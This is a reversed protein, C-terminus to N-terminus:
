WTFVQMDAFEITSNTTTGTLDGFFINSTATLLGVSTRVAAYEAGNRVMRNMVATGEGLFELWDSGSTTPLATGSNRLSSAGVSAPPTGSGGVYLTSGAAWSIVSTGDRLNLAFPTGAVAPARCRFRVYLKTTATITGSLATVGLSASSSAVNGDTCRVFGGVSSVSGGAGNTFVTFGQGALTGASETGVLYAQLEPTGAYVVPPLWAQINGSGAAAARPTVAKYRLLIPQGGSPTFVGFDGDQLGVASFDDVSSLTWAYGASLSAFRTWAGSQYSYAVSEEDHGGGSKILAIADTEVPYLADFAQADSVSAFRGQILRWENGGHRQATGSSHPTGLDNVGVQDNNLVTDETPLSAWDLENPYIYHVGDPTRFWTTGDSYYIPDTEVGTGVIATAGSYVLEPFAELDAKTAFLAQYLEWDTGNYRALGSGPNLDIVPAFDGNRLPGSIGGLALWDAVSNWVTADGLVVTGGGSSLRGGELLNLWKAIM